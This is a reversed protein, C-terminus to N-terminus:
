SGPQSIPDSQIVSRKHNGIKVEEKGEAGGGEEEDEKGNREEQHM